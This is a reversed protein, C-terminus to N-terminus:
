LYEMLKELAMSHSGKLMLLCGSIPSDQLKEVLMATNPYTVVEKGSLDVDTVADCFEHGVLIVKGIDTGAVLKLVGAHEASSWKGLELMDGLVVVKRYGAANADAPSLSAFWDLAARMSSPNANYCDAVVVNRETRVMRSRNTSPVYGSISDHMAANTVGFRRGVAVAAAVNVRNYEGPLNSEFGDADAASYNIVQLGEREAAMGALISDDQRVFAQGGTAALYDYLEGKAARVGAEGGFGELHARGVNTILGYNPRAIGCLAAIEGRSSAGMEVIGFETDPKMALLTLPVGIHNNLNGRTASVRFRASMVACTLEKTTTKGNTGTIAMIPIGLRLRHVTALEQLATLTDDVIFYGSKLAEGRTADDLGQIVDPNDVVALSAGSRLADAAFRNGDFTEGRLAFFISGQPINRSDTTVSRLMAYIDYLKLIYEGVEM